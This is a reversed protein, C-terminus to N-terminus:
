MKFNQERERKEVGVSLLKKVWQDNTNEHMSVCKCVLILDRKKRGTKLLILSSFRM